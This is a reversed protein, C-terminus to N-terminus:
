RETSQQNTSEHQDASPTSTDDRATEDTTRWDVRPDSPRDSRNEADAVEVEVSPEEDDVRDTLYQGLQRLRRVQPMTAITVALSSVGLLGMLALGAGLFLSGATWQQFAFFFFGISFGAEFKAEILRITEDFKRLRYDVANLAANAEQVAEQADDEVDEVRDLTESVDEVLTEANTLAEVFGEDGLLETLKRVNEIDSLM